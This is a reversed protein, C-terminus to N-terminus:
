AAAVVLRRLRRYGAALGLSALSIASLVRTSPEPVVNVQPSSLDSSPDSGSYVSITPNNPNSANPTIQIFALNNSGTPDTTSIQTSSGTFLGGPTYNQILFLSLTDPTSAANTSLDIQFSLTSGPTFGQDFYSFSNAPDVELNVGSTLSGSANGQTFAPSSALGGGFNFGSITATNGSAVGGSIMNFGIGFPGTLNSDGILGSTNVSVDIIYDAHVTAASLALLALAVVGGGLHRNM